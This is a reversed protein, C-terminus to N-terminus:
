HTLTANIERFIFFPLVVLASVWLWLFVIFFRGIASLGGLGAVWALDWAVFAAFLYMAVQIAAFLTAKIM